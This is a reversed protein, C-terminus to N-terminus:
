RAVPGPAVPESAPHSPGYGPIWRLVEARFPGECGLQCLVGIGATSVRHILVYSPPLNLRRAVNTTRVSTMRSTEARMWERSFTFSEVRSPEALPALFAHLQELDVSVGEDASSDLKLPPLSIIAALVIALHISFSILASRRM